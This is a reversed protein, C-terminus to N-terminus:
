PANTSIIRRTAFSLPRPFGCLANEVLESADELIGIDAAQHRSAESCVGVRDAFSFAM